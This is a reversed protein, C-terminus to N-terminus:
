AMKTCFLACSKKYVYYQAHYTMKYQTATSENSRGLEINQKHFFNHKMKYWSPIVAVDFLSLKIFVHYLAYCVPAWYNHM